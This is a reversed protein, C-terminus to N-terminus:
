TRKILFYLYVMTAITVFFSRIGIKTDRVTTYEHELDGIFEIDIYNSPSLERVRWNAITGNANRHNVANLQEDSFLPLAGPLIVAITSKKGRRIITLDNSFTWDAVIRSIAIDKEVPIQYGGFNHLLNVTNDLITAISYRVVVM